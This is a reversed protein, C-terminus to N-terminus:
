TSGTSRQGSHSKRGVSGSGKSKHPLALNPLPGEIDGEVPKMADADDVARRAITAEAAEIAEADANALAANGRKKKKKKGKGEAKAPADIAEIAPEMSPDIPQESPTGARKAEEEARVLQDIEGQVVLGKILPHDLMEAASARKDPHLNLM